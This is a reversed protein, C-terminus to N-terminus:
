TGSVVRCAPPPPPLQAQHWCAQVCACSKAPQRLVAVAQQVAASAGRPRMRHQHKSCVGAHPVAKSKVLAQYLDLAEQHLGAAVYTGALQVEVAFDLEPGLPELAHATRLKALM